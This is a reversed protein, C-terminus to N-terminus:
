SDPNLIDLGPDYVSTEIELLGLVTHFINDHSYELSTRHELMQRDIGFGDGFWMLAPIHTQNDPAIAYPLGHLYINNEGLSEGHDSFYLMATNFGTSYPKLFNIVKALFADTYLISNDYANNIEENTCNEFQNFRCSPTFVEFAQPYRKYYAPGHNGMQHLVIFLDGKKKSDIYADLGTLMGEDRCEVDCVPNLAAQTFDEFQVRESVGKSGSNNDRWLVNVGAHSLVDLLNETSKSARTNFTKRTLVSFMCPVSVATSTGCSSVDSFSVVDEKGLLPNTQRAYGNLAFRDARVAEGVVFIILERSRDASPIVADKGLAQVPLPPSDFNQNVYKGLSYLFYAPNMYQRLERHERLLSSSFKGFVLLTFIITLLSVGAIKSSALLKSGWSGAQINAKYILWSPLMGLVFFYLLLKGSFLDSSEYFNTQVINQIMSDDIVVGFGNMFYSAVSSSLFLIILAPKILFKSSFLSILLATVSALLLVAVSISLMNQLTFPYSELLKRFFLVNHFLVFFASSLILIKGTTIKEFSKM